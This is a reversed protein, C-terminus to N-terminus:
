AAELILNATMRVTRAVTAGTVKMSMVQGATVAVSNVLNSGAAAGSNLTLTLATDALTGVTAGIRITYVLNDGGVPTAHLIRLTNLFGDRLITEIRLEAGESAGTSIWPVIFQTGANISNNGFAYHLQETADQFEAVGAATVTLVQGVDGAGPSAQPLTWSSPVWL